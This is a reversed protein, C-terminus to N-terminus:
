GPAICRAAISADAFMVECFKKGTITRPAMAAMYDPLEGHKIQHIWARIGSDGFEHRCSRCRWRRSDVSVSCGGLVVSGEKLKQRLAENWSPRGWQIRAIRNSGCNPCIFPKQWGNHSSGSSM